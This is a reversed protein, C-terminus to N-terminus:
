RERPNESLRRETALQRRGHSRNRLRRGQKRNGRRGTNGTRRQRRSEGHFRGLGDDAARPQRAGRDSRPRVGDPPGGKRSVVPRLHHPQRRGPGMRPRSRGCSRRARCADRRRRELLRQDPKHLVPRNDSLRPRRRHKRGAATPRVRIRRPATIRFGNQCARSQRGLRRNRARPIQAQWARIDGGTGSPTDVRRRPPAALRPPRGCPHVHQHPRNFPRYAKPLLQRISQM